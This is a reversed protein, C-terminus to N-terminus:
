KEAYQYWPYKKNRYPLSLFAWYYHDLFHQYWEVLDNGADNQRIKKKLMGYWRTIESEQENHIWFIHIVCLPHIMDIISRVKSTNMWHLTEKVGLSILQYILVKYCRNEKSTMPCIFSENTYWSIKWWIKQSTKYLVLLM